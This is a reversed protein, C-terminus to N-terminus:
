KNCTEKKTYKHEYVQEKSRFVDELFYLDKLLSTDMYKSAIKNFKLIVTRTFFYSLIWLKGFPTGKSPVAGGLWPSITLLYYPRCTPPCYM